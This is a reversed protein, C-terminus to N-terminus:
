PAASCKKGEGVWAWAGRAAGASSCARLVGTVGTLQVDDADADGCAAGAGAAMIPGEPVCEVIECDSDGGFPVRRARKRPPREAEAEEDSSLTLDIVDAGRAM